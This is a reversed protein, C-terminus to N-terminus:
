NWSSCSENYKYDFKLSDLYACIYISLFLVDIDKRQKNCLFWMAYNPVFSFFPLGKASQRPHYHIKTRIPQRFFAEDPTAFHIRGHQPQDMSLMSTLLERRGFWLDGSLAWVLMTQPPTLEM